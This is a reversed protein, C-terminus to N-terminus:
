SIHKLRVPLPHERAKKLAKQKAQLDKRFGDRLIRAADVTINDSGADEWFKDWARGALKDVKDPSFLGSRRLVVIGAAKEVSQRIFEYTQEISLRDIFESMTEGTKHEPLALRGKSPKTVTFGHRHAYSKKSVNKGAGTLATLYDQYRADINVAAVPRAEESKKDWLVLLEAAEDTPEPIYLGDIGTLIRARREANKHGAYQKRFEQYRKNLDKQLVPGANAKVQWVMVGKRTPSQAVARRVDIGLLRAFLEKSRINLHAFDRNARDLEQEIIIPESSLQSINNADGERSTVIQKKLEARYESNAHEEDFLKFIELATQNPVLEPLPPEPLEIIEDYPPMKVNDQGSLVRKRYKVKEPEDGGYYDRFQEFLETYEPEDLRIKAVIASVDSQQERRHSQEQNAVESGAARAFYYEAYLADEAVKQTLKAQLQDTSKEYTTASLDGALEMEALIARAATIYKDCNLQKVSEEQLYYVAAVADRTFILPEPSITAISGFEM